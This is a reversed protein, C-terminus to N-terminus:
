VIVDEEEDPQALRVEALICWARHERLLGCCPCAEKTFAEQVSIAQYSGLLERNQATDEQCPPNLALHDTGIFWYLRHEHCVAYQRNNITLVEECDGCNPCGGVPTNAYFATTGTAQVVDAIAAALVQADDAEGRKHLKGALKRLIAITGFPIIPRTEMNEAKPQKRVGLGFIKDYKSL